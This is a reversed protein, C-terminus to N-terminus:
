VADGTCRSVGHTVHAVAVSGAHLRGHRVPHGDDARIDPGDDGWVRRKGVPADRGRGRPQSDDADGVGEQEHAM